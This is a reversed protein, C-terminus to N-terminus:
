RLGGLNFLVVVCAWAVLLTAIALAGEKIFSM